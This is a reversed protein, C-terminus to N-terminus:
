RQCRPRAVTITRWISGREASGTSLRVASHPSFGWAGRWVPRAPRIATSRLGGGPNVPLAGGVGTMETEALLALRAPAVSGLPYDWAMDRAMAEWEGLLDKSATERLKDAGVVLAVDIAGSAGGFWASRVADAGTAGSNTERTVPLAPSGRSDARIVSPFGGDGAVRRHATGWCPPYTGITAAYPM